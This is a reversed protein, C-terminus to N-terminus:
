RMGPMAMDPAAALVKVNVKVVGAHAFRLAVPFSTGVSLGQTLGILMFHYGNPTIDVRGRAPIALGGPVPDMSMRGRVVTTHHLDMKAAVPTSADILQDPTPSPNAITMYVVGTQLGAPVPRSWAATVSLGHTPRASAPALGVALSVALVGGAIQAIKM